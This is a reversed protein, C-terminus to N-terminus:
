LLVFCVDEAYSILVMILWIYVMVGRRLGLSLTGRRLARILAASKFFAAKAAAFFFFGTAGDFFRALLDTHLDLVVIFLLM